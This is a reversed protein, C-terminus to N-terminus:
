NNKDGEKSQDTQSPHEAVVAAQTLRLNLVLNDVAANGKRLSNLSNKMLELQPYNPPVIQFVRSKLTAMSKQISSVQKELAAFVQQPETGNSSDIEDCYVVDNILEKRPSRALVVAIASIILFALVSIGVGTAIAIFAFM